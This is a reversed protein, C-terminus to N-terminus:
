IKSYYRFNSILDHKPTNKRVKKWSSHDFYAIKTVHENFNFYFIPWTRASFPSVKFLPIPEVESGNEVIQVMSIENINFALSHSLSLRTSFLLLLLVGFVYFKECYACTCKYRHWLLREFRWQFHLVKAIYANPRSHFNDIGNVTAMINWPHIYCCTFM